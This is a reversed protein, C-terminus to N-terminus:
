PQRSAPPRTTTAVALQNTDKGDDGDDDVNDDDDGDGDDGDDGDDYCMHIPPTEMRILEAKEGQQNPSFGPAAEITVSPKMRM